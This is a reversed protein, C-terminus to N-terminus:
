ALWRALDVYGSPKEGGPQADAAITWMDRPRGRAQRTRRREVLGAESLRELHTRVGNPHLALRQALEDTGTPRRLEGLVDFVRRRTPQALADDPRAPADM